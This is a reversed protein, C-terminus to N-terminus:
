VTTPASMFQVWDERVGSGMAAFKSFITADLLSTVTGNLLMPLMVAHDIPKGTEAVYAANNYAILRASVLRALSKASNADLTYEAPHLLYIDPTRAHRAAYRQVLSAGDDGSPTMWRLDHPDNGGVSLVADVGLGLGVLVSPLGGGSTGMTVVGRYKERDVYKAALAVLDDEEDIFFRRFGDRDPDMFLIVDVLSADLHQLFVPLAMMMRRTGGTFCLFLVKSRTDGQGSTYFFIKEQLRRRTFPEPVAKGSKLFLENIWACWQANPIAPAKKLKRPAGEPEPPTVVPTEPDPEPPPVWPGADEVLAALELPTIRNEIVLRVRNIKNPKDLIGRALRHYLKVILDSRM